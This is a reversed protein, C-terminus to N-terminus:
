EVKAKAASTGLLEQINEATILTDGVKCNKLTVTARETDLPFGPEFVCNTLTTESYPRLMKYAGAEFRCNTFSVPGISKSYSTWGRLTSNTVEVGPGAPALDSIDASITYAGPAIICNDIILKENLGNTFIGRFAGTVTLNKITGGKTFLACNWTDNADQVDLTAGQGDIISGNTHVIGTKDYGGKTADGEIDETFVVEKVTESSLDKIASLDVAGLEVKGDKDVKLVDVTVDTASNTSLDLTTGAELPMNRGVIEDANAAKEECYDVLQNATVKVNDVTNGSVVNSGNNVKGVLGAVDRYATVKLNKVSSNTIYNTGECLHGVLGGVNNADDNKGDKNKHPTSLVTGGDVHCNDVTGYINAVLAAANWNGSINVNALKVNKITGIVNSFLGAYSTGTVAVKLNKITHNGGDFTGRFAKSTGIPTWAKNNLDIDELLAITYREFGNDSLVYKSENSESVFWDFGTLGSLGIANRYTIGVGDTIHYPIEYDGSPTLNDHIFFWQKGAHNTLTNNKAILSINLATTQNKDGVTIGYFGNKTNKMDITNGTVVATVDDAFRTMRIGYEKASLTNNTIVLNESNDAKIADEAADTITNGNITVKNGDGHNIMVGHKNAGTVTNGEILLTGYPWYVEIGHKYSDEKEQTAVYSISNDRIVGNTVANLRIFTKTMETAVCNTVVVNKGGSVYIHGTGEAVIGNFTLNEGGITSEISQTLPAATAKDGKITVNYAKGIFTFEPYAVDKGVEITINPYTEGAKTLSEVPTNGGVKIGGEVEGELKLYLDKAITTSLDIGENTGEAAVTVVGGAEVMEQITKQPTEADIVKYLDEDNFKGDVRVNVDAEGTLLTGYLNTRYNRRVPVYLVDDISVVDGNDAYFKMSVKDVLANGSGGLTPDDALIYCMSLYKHDVGGIKLNEVLISNTTFKVEAPNSVSGSLLDLKTAANSVTIESSTFVSGRAEAAAYDELTTGANIQAFPRKLTVTIAQDGKINVTETCYFADFTLDNNKAASYDISLVMNDDLEYAECSPNHAWFVVKYTKDKVLRIKIDDGSTFDNVTTKSDKIITGNADFVAYTLETAAEDTDAVGRTVMDNGTSVSFTVEAEGGPASINEKNCSIMLAAAIVYIFIFFLRKM